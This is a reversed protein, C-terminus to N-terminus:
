LPFYTSINIQLESLKFCICVVALAIHLYTNQKDNSVLWHLIGAFALSDHFYPKTLICAKVWSLISM